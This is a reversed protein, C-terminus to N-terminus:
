AKFTYPGWITIGKAGESPSCNGNGVTVNVFNNTSMNTAELIIPHKKSKITELIATRM